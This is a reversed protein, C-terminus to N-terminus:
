ELANHCIINKDLIKFAKDKSLYDSVIDYLRNKMEEVNDAMLEVNM